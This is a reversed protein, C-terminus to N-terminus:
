LTETITTKQLRNKRDMERQLNKNQNLVAATQDM